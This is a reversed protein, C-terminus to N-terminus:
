SARPLDLPQGDPLFVGVPTASFAATLRLSEDGSNVIQHLVNPPIVLTADPGNARICRTV